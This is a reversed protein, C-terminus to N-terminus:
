GRLWGWSARCSLWIFCVVSFWVSVSPSDAWQPGEPVHECQGGARRPRLRRTALRFLFAAASSGPHSPHGRGAAPSPSVLQHVSPPSADRADTHDAIRRISAPGYDTRHSLLQAKRQRKHKEEYREPANKKFKCHPPTVVRGCTRAGLGQYGADALIDVTPGGALLKALGLQRVHTIDASSAPRAPNCWVMRGEGDPWWPSSPTGSTGAPFSSTRTRADPPPGATDRGASLGRRADPHRMTSPSTGRTLCASRRRSPQGPHSVGVIDAVHDCLPDAPLTDSAPRVFCCRTTSSLHGRMM